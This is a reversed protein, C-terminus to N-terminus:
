RKGAQHTPGTAWVQLDTMDKATAKAGASPDPRELFGVFLESESPELVYNYVHARLGAHGGDPLPGSPAHSRAPRRSVTRSCGAPTPTTSGPWAVGYFRGGSDAVPGSDARLGALAVSLCAAVVVAGAHRDIWQRLGWSEEGRAM